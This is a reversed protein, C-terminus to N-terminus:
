MNVNRYDDDTSSAHIRDRWMAGASSRTALRNQMSTFRGDNIMPMETLAACRTSHYSLSPLEAALRPAHLFPRELM